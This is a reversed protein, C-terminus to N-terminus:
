IREVDDSAIGFEEIQYLISLKLLGIYINDDAILHGRGIMKMWEGAKKPDPNMMGEYQMKKMVIIYRKDGHEIFFPKFEESM